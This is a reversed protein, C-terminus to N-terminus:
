VGMGTINDVAELQARQEILHPDNHPLVYKPVVADDEWFDLEAVSPGGPVCCALWKIQNVLRALLVSTRHWDDGWPKLKYAQWWGEFQAPTLQALM